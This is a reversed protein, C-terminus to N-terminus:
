KTRNSKLKRKEEINEIDLQKKRLQESSNVYLITSTAIAIIILPGFFDNFNLNNFINKNIIKNATQNNNKNDTVSNPNFAMNPSNNPIFKITVKGLANGRQEAFWIDKKSDTVLYQVFSNSTPVDINITEGTNPDLIALTDSVHQAIWLNDYVDLAMGFALGNIDTLHYEKFVSTFTNFQIVSNKEHDSIYLNSNKGDLLLATPESLITRELTNSETVNPYESITKTQIDLRGIKGISEAFWIYNNNEDYIPSSPRSNETPIRFTEFNKKNIDFKLLSNDQIISIWINDSNDITLGSIVGKKPLEYTETKNTDTNFKGLLNSTPDIFWLINPNKPEFVSLTILNIGNITYVQYNKNEIDFKWLRGSGPLSDGVWISNTSAQYVPDLLLSNQPAKYETINFQLDSIRPKINIEFTAITNPTNPQITKGQIEVNWLGLASFPVVANFRGNSIKQMDILIPGIGREIQSLKLTANIINAAPNNNYDSFEVFIKNEGLRGPNLNIEIKQNESYVVTSYIDNNNQVQNALPTVTQSSNTINSSPLEGSPLVMNTMLSVVFLLCLGVLTEIRLTWIFRKLFNPQNALTQKTHGKEGIQKMSLTSIRKETIFQHYGGLIIMIAALILKVILIKGYLSDITTSLNSEISWLLIPGTISISGLVPIIIVSFRPIVMSIIKAKLEEDKILFIKSIFIFTLFILGGIWFSAAIGHFYDILIPGFSKLAASHSIMSNTFLLGLGLCMIAIFYGVKDKEKKSIKFKKYCFLLFGLLILALGLRIIIIKGFETTLVDWVSGGIASAQILVTAIISFLVLINGIIILKILDRRILYLNPQLLNKIWEYKSLPKQIWLFIFSAGVIVIQGVYGPIRSLSNDISLLDFIDKSKSKIKSFDAEGGGISYVVSGDVVHGDVASLVKTNITFTGEGIGKKLPVSITSTDGNYNEPNGEDARNGESDIVSIQSYPLVIPESFYVTVRDPPNELSQFQKPNSDTIIPHAYVQAPFYSTIFVLFFFILSSSLFIKKKLERMSVVIIK